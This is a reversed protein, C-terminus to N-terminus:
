ARRAAIILGTAWALRTCRLCAHNELAAILPPVKPGHEAPWSPQPLLDDIVYLGGPALLSL